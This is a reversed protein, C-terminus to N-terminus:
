RVHREESRTHASAEDATQSVDRISLFNENLNQIEITTRAQYVPTQPLTVLLAALLGLCAILLLTGKRRRLMHWYELLLGPGQNDLMMPPPAEMYPPRSPLYPPANQRQLSKSNPDDM